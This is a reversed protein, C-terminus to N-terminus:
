RWAGGPIRQDVRVGLPISHSFARMRAGSGLGTPEEDADTEMLVWGPTEAEPDYGEDIINIVTSVAEYAVFRAISGIDGESVGVDVLRKLALGADAFYDNPDREAEDIM